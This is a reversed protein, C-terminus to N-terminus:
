AREIKSRKMFMTTIFAVNAAAIFAYEESLYGQYPYIPPPIVKTIVAIFTLGAVCEAVWPWRWATLASALYAPVQVLNIIYIKPLPGADLALIGM